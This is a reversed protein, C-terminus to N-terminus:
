ERLQKAGCAFGREINQVEVFLHGRQIVVVTRVGNDNSRHVAVLSRTWGTGPKEFPAALRTIPDRTQQWTRPTVDNISAAAYPWGCYNSMNPSKADLAFNERVEQCV